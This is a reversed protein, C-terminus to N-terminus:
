FNVKLPKTRLILYLFENYLKPNVQPKPEAFFFESVKSM